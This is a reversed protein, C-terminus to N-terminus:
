YWSRNGVFVMCVKKFHKQVESYWRPVDEPPCVVLVFGCHPRMQKRNILAATLATLSGGMGFEDCLFTGKFMTETSQLLKTVGVAQWSKLEAQLCPLFAPM